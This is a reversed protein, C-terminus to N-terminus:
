KVAIPLKLNWHFLTKSAVSRTLLGCNPPLSKQISRLILDHVVVFSLKISLKLFRSRLFTSASSKSRDTQLTFESKGTLTQGAKLLRELILAVHYETSMAFRDTAEFRLVNAGQWKWSGGTTPKLIAPDKGLIEGVHGEGLPRDFVINLGRQNERDFAIDIVSATEKTPKEKKWRAKTQM